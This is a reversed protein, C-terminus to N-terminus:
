TNRSFAETRPNGDRRTLCHRPVKEQRSASATRGPRGPTNVLARGVWGLHRQALPLSHDTGAQDSPSMPGLLCSIRHDGGAVHARPAAQRRPHERRAAQLRGARGGSETTVRPATCPLPIPPFFFPNKPAQRHTAASGLTPSDPLCRDGRGQRRPCSRGPM